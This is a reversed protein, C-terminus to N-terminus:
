WSIVEEFLKIAAPKEDLHRKIVGKMFILYCYQDLSKSADSSKAHIKLKNEVSALMPFLLKPQKAMMHFFNWIYILELPPLLMNQVNDHFKKSRDLVIKEHFAKKGGLKRKM